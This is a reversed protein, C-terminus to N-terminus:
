EQTVLVRDFYLIDLGDKKIKFNGNGKKNVELIGADWYYGSDDDVMWVEYYVDNMSYPPYREEDDFVPLLKKVKLSLFGISKGSTLYTQRLTAKGQADSEVESVLPINKTIMHASVGVISVVLVFIAILTLENRM